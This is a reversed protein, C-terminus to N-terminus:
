TAVKVKINVDRLVDKKLMNILEKQYSVEKRTPKEKDFDDKHM